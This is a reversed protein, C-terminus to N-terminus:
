ANGAVERLPRKVGALVGSKITGRVEADALGLARGAAYLAGVAATEDLLGAAIWRAVTFAQRNLTANRQGPPAASIANLARDLGRRAHDSSLVVPRKPRPPPPPPALLALLWDPAPPPALDWPAVVWRYAGGKRRSPPVMPCLRVHLTDLGPAPIGTGRRIPRGTDRFVLLHGGSPSRGHPRPPLSGHLDCLARLAEVGDHRHEDGPVDVDLFWVGSGQPRVKWCAHPYDRQWAALQDLDDTAADLFGVFMGKKRSTAPVLKWGLLALREIDPHLSM